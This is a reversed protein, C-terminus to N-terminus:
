PKNVESLDIKWKKMSKDYFIKNKKKMVEFIDKLGYKIIEKKTAPLIKILKGFEAKSDTIEKIQDSDDEPLKENDGLNSLFKLILNPNSLINSILLLDAGIKYGFVGWSGERLDISKSFFDNGRYLGNIINIKELYVTRILDINKLLLKNNLKINENDLTTYALCVGFYCLIGFDTDLFEFFIDEIESNQRKLTKLYGFFISLALLHEFIIKKETYKGFEKGLKLIENFLINSILIRFDNLDLQDTSSLGDFYLKFDIIVRNLQDLFPEFISERKKEQIRIIHNRYLKILFDTLVKSWNLLSPNIKADMIFAEESLYIKKGNEIKFDGEKLKSPNYYPNKLNKSTLINPFIEEFVSFFIPYGHWVDYVTLMLKKYSDFLNFKLELPFNLKILEKIRYLQVGKIVLDHTSHSAIISGMSQIIRVLPNGYYNESKELIVSIREAIIQFIRNTKDFLNTAQKSDIEQYGIDKFLFILGEISYAMSLDFYPSELACIIYGELFDLICSEFSPNKELILNIKVQVNDRVFERNIYPPVALRGLNKFIDPDAYESSLRIEVLINLADINIKEFYSNFLKTTKNLKMSPLAEKTYEILNRKTKEEFDRDEKDVKPIFNPLDLKFKSKKYEKNFVGNIVKIRKEFFDLAKITTTGSKLLPLILCGLTMIILLILPILIILIQIIFHLKLQYISLFVIFIIEIIYIISFYIIYRVINISEQIYNSVTTSKTFKLILAYISISLTFFGFTWSILSISISIEHNDEFINSNIILFGLLISIISILLIYFKIDKFFPKKIQFNKKNGSKVFNIKLKEKTKTFSQILKAKINM